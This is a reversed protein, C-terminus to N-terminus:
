RDTRRPYPQVSESEARRTGARCRVPRWGTRAHALHFARNFFGRRRTTPPRRDRAPRTPWRGRPRGRVIGPPGRVRRARFRRFSVWCPSQGRSPPGGRMSVDAPTNRRLPPPRGTPRPAAVAGPLGRERRSHDVPLTRPMRVWGLYTSDTTSGGAPPPGHRHPPRHCPLRATRATPGAATRGVLHPKRFRTSLRRVPRAENVSSRSRYGVSGPIRPTIFQDRGWPVEHETLTLNATPNPPHLTTDTPTNRAGRDPTLRRPREHAPDGLTVPQVGVDRHTSWRGRCVALV